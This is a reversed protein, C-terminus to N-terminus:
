YPTLSQSACFCEGQLSNIPIDFSSIHLNKSPPCCTMSLVACAHRIPCEDCPRRETPLTISPPSSPSDHQPFTIIQMAACSLCSVSKASPLAQRISLPSTNHIIAHICNLLQTGICQVPYVQEYEITHKYVIFYHHQGNYRANQLWTLSIWCISM